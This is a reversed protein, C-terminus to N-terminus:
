SSTVTVEDGTGAAFRRAANGERVAIELLGFSNILALSKGKEIEM